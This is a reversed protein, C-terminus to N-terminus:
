EYIVEEVRGTVLKELEITDPTRRYIDATALLSGSIALAAVGQKIRKPLREIFKFQKEKEHLPLDYADKVSNSVRLVSPLVIAGVLVGLGAYLLQKELPANPAAGAYRAYSIIGSALGFFAGAYTKSILSDDDLNFKTQIYEKSKELALKGIPLATYALGLALVRSRISIEDEWSKILPNVEVSAFIPNALTQIITADVLNKLGYNERFWNPKSSNLM